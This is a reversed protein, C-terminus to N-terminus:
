GSGPPELEALDPASWKTLRYGQGPRGEFDVWGCSRLENGGERVVGYRYRRADPGGQNATTPPGILELVESESLGHQLRLWNEIRSWRPAEDTM